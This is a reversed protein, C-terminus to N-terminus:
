SLWCSSCARSCGKGMSYVSIFVWSHLLKCVVCSIFLGPYRAAVVIEAVVEKWPTRM